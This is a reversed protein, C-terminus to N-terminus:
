AAPAADDPHPITFHFTTGAGLESELWIQGGHREVVKKCVALGIGTGPYEEKGHLRQFVQFVRKFQDPEIGIGNDQVSVRWQRGADRASIRIVPQDRRFKIANAILNQFLASLQARQGQVVPLEGVEVRAGSEHVSQELGGLVDHVLAGLDVSKLERPGTSVRAYALLDDILLRMREAGALSRDIYGQAKDDLSDGVRRKLLELFGSVSRLPEKLDHSVAYGFEMLDDNSRELDANSRALAETRLRLNALMINFSRSLTGLEDRLDLEIQQDMDGAAARATVADLELIPRSISASLFFAVLMVGALTAATVLIGFLQMEHVQRYASAAEIEGIICLRYDELYTFAALVARGDYSTLEDAGSQELLCRIVPESYNVREMAFGTKGAPDTVFHNSSNVLYMDSEQDLGAYSHIIEHLRKIRLRLGLVAIAHEQHRIPLAVTSTTRGLTVSHYTNQISFEQRGEQFYPRNDKFKGEQTPDTSLIVRGYADMLFVEDYFGDPETYLQLHERIATYAPDAHRSEFPAGTLSAVQSQFGPIRPILSVQWRREEYWRDISDRKLSVAGDLHRMLENRIGAKANRFAVFSLFLIPLASVALLYFSIKARISRFGFLRRLSAGARRGAADDAVQPESM